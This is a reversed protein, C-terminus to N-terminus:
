INKEQLKRDKELLARYSKELDDNFDKGTEQCYGKTFRNYMERFMEMNGRNESEIAKAYGRLM